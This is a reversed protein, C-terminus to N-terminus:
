GDTEPAGARLCVGCGHRTCTHTELHLSNRYKFNHTMILCIQLGSAQVADQGIPSVGSESTAVFSALKLLYPKAGPPGAQTCAAPLQAEGQLILFLCRGTPLGKATTESAGSPPALKPRTGPTHIKVPGQKSRLALEHATIKLRPAM